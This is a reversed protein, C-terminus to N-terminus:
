VMKFTEGNIRIRLLSSIKYNRVWVQEKTERSMGADIQRNSAAKVPLFPKVENVPLANGNKDQYCLVKVPVARRQGPRSQTRIYYEGKHEILKNPIKWTGWPLSTANFEPLEVGQKLLENKVGLEYDAGILASGRVKKFVVKDPFPNNTKKAGADTLAEFGIISAGSMGSIM